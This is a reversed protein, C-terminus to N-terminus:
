RVRQSLQDCPWPVSTFEPMAVVALLQKMETKSQQGGDFGGELGIALRTPKKVVEEM